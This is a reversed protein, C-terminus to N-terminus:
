IKNKVFYKALLLYFRRQCDYIISVMMGAQMGHGTADGLIVTLNGDKHIHFDYYDGGVETATKMYVAVDINPLTPLNKPLM